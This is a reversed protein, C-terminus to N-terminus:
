HFKYLSMSTKVYGWMFGRATYSLWHRRFYPTIQLIFPAFALLYWCFTVFCLLVFYFLIIFVYILFHFLPLALITHTGESWSTLDGHHRRFHKLGIRCRNVVLLALLIQLFSQSTRAIPLFLDEFHYTKNFNHLLDHSFLAKM